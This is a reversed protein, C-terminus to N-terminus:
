YGDQIHIKLKNKLNIGYVLFYESFMYERNKNALFVYGM